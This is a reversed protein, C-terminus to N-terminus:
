YSFLHGIVILITWLISAKAFRKIYDTYSLQEEVSGRALWWASGGLICYLIYVSVILLAFLVLLDYFLPTTGTERLMDFFGATSSPNLVAHRAIASGLAVVYETIKDFYSSTILGYLFIFLLDIGIAAAGRQKNKVMWQFTNKAAHITLSVNKSAMVKHVFQKM